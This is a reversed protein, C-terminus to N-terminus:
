KQFVLVNSGGLGSNQLVATKHREVQRDGALGKLQWYVESIMRCGSAGIPHGCGILGGDTNVPIRGTIETQHEWTLRAGEGKPCLGLAELQQIEGYSFADHIQVLDVDEPGIGSKEYARRAAAETDGESLSTEVPDDHHYRMSAEGWGSLFVPEATYQRAKEESCIIVAAAGSSNACCQYLTLPYSIMRSNLVEELSISNRYMANPNLCSNKHNKVAVQAFQEPTAGYMHMYRVAKYAYSGPMTILGMMIDHLMEHSSSISEPDIPMPVMGRPMREVGVVMVTDYGGAEIIYAGFETARTASACAIDVRTIPIGTKALSCFVLPAMGPQYVNSVFGMEIDGYSMGADRLAALVADHAMEDLRKSPDKEFPTVGVGLVVVRRGV